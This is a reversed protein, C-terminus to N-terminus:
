PIVKGTIVITLNRIFNSLGKLIFLSLGIPVLLPVPWNQPLFTRLSPHFRPAVDMATEGALWLMAILFLFFFISTVMDVLSRIRLPLRDHLIDVNVHAGARLAYAAGFIVYVSFIRNTTTFDFTPSFRFMRQLVWYIVAAIILIITFSVIKGAWESIADIIHLFTALERM